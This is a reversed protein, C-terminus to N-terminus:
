VAGGFRGRNPHGVRFLIRQWPPNRCYRLAHEETAIGSFLCHGANSTRVRCPKKNGDLALAYLSLDECWFAQEFREKLAQAQANLRKALETHGLVCALYAAKQRADYVYGQVECLAIPGEALTGDSHFVADHSDKWGQNVLGEPRHRQYEVFGDGDVDGRTDIWELALMINPWISEILERDKTREYYAGALIIFLPTADVSGYYRGFPIEGLEAMEGKRTEHLIKGPEADQSPNAERAQTFALYALVGRAIDPAVWLMQLATIIGDRGFATSFWPVGAYPYLGQPTNTLMMCLDAESRNLWENFQENSTRIKCIKARINKLSESAETWASQYSHTLFKGSECTCCVAMSFVASQKPELDVEFRAESSASGPQSRRSSWIPKGSKGM